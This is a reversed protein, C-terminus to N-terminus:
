QRLFSESRNPITKPSGSGEFFPEEAKHADDVSGVFPEEAKHADGVPGVFPDEAANALCSSAGVAEAPPGDSVLYSRGFFVGAKRRAGGDFM